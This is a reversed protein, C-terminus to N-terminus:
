GLQGDESAIRKHNLSDFRSMSAIIIAGVLM